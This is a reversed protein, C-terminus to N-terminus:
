IRPEIALKGALTTRVGHGNATHLESNTRKPYCPHVPVHSSSHARPLPTHQYVTGFIIERVAYM